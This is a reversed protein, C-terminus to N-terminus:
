RDALTCCLQRTLPSSLAAAAAEYRRKALDDLEAVPLGTRPAAAPNMARLATSLALMAEAVELALYVGAGRREDSGPSESLDFSAEPAHRLNDVVASFARILVQQVQGPPTTDDVSSPMM